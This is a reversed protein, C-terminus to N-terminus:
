VIHRANCLGIVVIICAVPLMRLYLMYTSLM